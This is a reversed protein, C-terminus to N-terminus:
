VKLISGEAVGKWGMWKVAVCHPKRKSSKGRKATRTQM